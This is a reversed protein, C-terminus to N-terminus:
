VRTRDVHWKLTVMIHLKYSSSSRCTTSSRAIHCRKHHRLPRNLPHPSHHPTGQLFCSINHTANTRLLYQVDHKSVHAEESRTIYCFMFHQWLSLVADNCIDGAMMFSMTPCRLLTRALSSTVSPNSYQVNCQIYCSYFSLEMENANCACM